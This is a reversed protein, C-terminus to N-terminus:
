PGNKLSGLELAIRSSAQCGFGHAFPHESEIRGALSTAQALADWTTPKKDSPQYSTPCLMM